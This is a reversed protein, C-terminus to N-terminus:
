RLRLRRSVRVRKGGVPKFSLRLTLRPRRTRRLFARGKRTLKVKLRKHGARTFRRKGRAVLVSPRGRRRVLLRAEYTGALPAGVLFRFSGRRLLGRRRLRRLARVARRAGARVAALIMPGPNTSSTRAIAVPVRVTGASVDVFFSGAGVLTSVELRYSGARPSPYTLWSQRGQRQGTAVEVGGPDWLRLDVGAPLDDSIATVAIPFRPEIVNVGFARVSGLGVLEGRGFLHGPAPPPSTLPAGAAKLAAYADLRGAGYDIDPGAPGWDVATSKILAKVQAPTLGPSRDRMLLAVGAVFPASMSTGSAALYGTGTGGAASLIGVGPASVDPKVPTGSSGRSSFYAEFFGGKGLDAMAGVTLANAAAAPSAITCTAPGDNGAAVVVVLGAASAANVADSVPDQGDSCGDGGLSLNIAEIGYAARNAVVWELGDITLSSDGEGQGNLVKVGVLAAAPAVGRYRRDLRASGDGAITAAVHTGHGEDDYPSTSSGVFDKFALVKGGDLDAHGTDIGTDLVAAVLDGRSYASPNGDRDGDLSPLDTRAETTGFSSGATDNLAHLKADPDVRLVRGDRALARVQQETLSASFGDILALRRRV